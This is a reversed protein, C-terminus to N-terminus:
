TPSRCVYKSIQFLYQTVLSCPINEGNNGTEVTDTSLVIDVPKNFIIKVTEETVPACGIDFELNSIRIMVTSKSRKRIMGLVQITITKRIVLLLTTM